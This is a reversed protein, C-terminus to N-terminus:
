SANLCRYAQTLTANLEELRTALEQRCVGYRRGYGMGACGTSQQEKRCWFSVNGEPLSSIVRKICVRVRYPGCVIVRRRAFALSDNVPLSSLTEPMKSLRTAATVVITM